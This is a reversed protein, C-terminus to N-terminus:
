SEANFDDDEFEQIATDQFSGRPKTDAARPVDRAPEPSEPSMPGQQPLRRSASSPPLRDDRRDRDYSGRDFEDDRDASVATAPGRYGTDRRPSFDDRDRGSAGRRDYEDYRDYGGRREDSYADPSPPYQSPAPPQQQPVPHLPRPPPGDDRERDRERERASERSDRRILVRQSDRQAPPADRPTPSDSRGRPASSDDDAPRLRRSATSLSATSGYAQPGRERDRDRDAQGPYYSQSHPAAPPLRGPSVDGRDYRQSQSHQPVVAPLSRQSTIAQAASMPATASDPPKQGRAPTTRGVTVTDLLDFFNQSPPM